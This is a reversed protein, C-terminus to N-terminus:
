PTSEDLMSCIKTVNDILMTKIKQKQEGLLAERNKDETDSKEYFLRYPPINLAAAMREVYAVSPFRRGGEIQRIYCPDTNCLEALKEQTFGAQKRCNRLNARFVEQLVM